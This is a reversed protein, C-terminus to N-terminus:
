RTRCSLSIGILELAQQHLRHEPEVLADLATFHNRGPLLECVPVREQGWADRILQNQRHFEVSEDAGCVTYLKGSSPSPLLAPSAKRVQDRTLQLTSQLFPARMVPDLDHLGSISLAGKVVDAPLDRGYVRWLCSLMMAALQGGASHGAVTIRNPDGGHRAVHRWTWAVAHVMQMVIQPVTVAPALAYNPIVVCVGQKVFPPAIFLHDRKDLARWYGGHIFVLVPADPNAAPFIDLHENAGGGYRVDLERHLSRMADASAGAWRRLHEPHEPVLERNNYMADHWAGDKERTM